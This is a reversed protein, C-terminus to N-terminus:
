SRWHALRLRGARMSGVSCKPPLTASWRSSNVASAVLAGIGESTILVALLCGTGFLAVVIAWFTDPYLEFM